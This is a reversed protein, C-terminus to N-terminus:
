QLIDDSSIPSFIVRGQLFFLLGFLTITVIQVPILFIPENFLDPIHLQVLHLIVLYGCFYPFMLIRYLIYIVLFTQALLHCQQTTLMLNSSSIDFKNLIRKFSDDFLDPAIPSKRVRIQPQRLLTISSGEAFFPILKQIKQKSNNMPVVVLFAPLYCLSLFRFVTWVDIFFLDRNLLKNYKHLSDEALHSALALASFM